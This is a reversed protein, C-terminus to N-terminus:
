ERDLRDTGSEPYVVPAPGHPGEEMEVKSWACSEAYTHQAYAAVDPDGDAGIRLQV